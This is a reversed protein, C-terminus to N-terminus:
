TVTTQRDTWTFVAMVHGTIPETYVLFYHWQRRVHLRGIGSSLFPLVYFYVLLRYKLLSLLSVDVLTVIVFCIIVILLMIPNLTAAYQITFTHNLTLSPMPNPGYAAPYM